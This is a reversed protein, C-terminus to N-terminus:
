AARVRNFFTAVKNELDHARSSLKATWSTIDGIASANRAAAQEVSGVETSARATYGAANHISEAISGTTASQEQVASAISTAVTTLTNIARTISAIEEVSRKTATQIAAVQQSIDDTARSTQNALTKVEAAVVAFGKGADGARAAEITANLALLNTQAAIASIASVVSGIRDAANDLSRIVDQTREADAVASQAMGLGRTAQEGIEQISGSLEETAAVTAEIRHATESSATSASAMRKQTDNAVDNLTTCSASLSDSTEKIANVVEGIAGAFEAIAEDIAGRRQVAAEEAAQRHLTMGNSVDFSIVKSIVISYAVVKSSSFRYKRGLAELAAKLVYSGATSRIRGDMGMAAEQHVTHRCSEAYDRDLKGGLLARFHSLELKKFFAENQAVAAGVRALVRVAVAIDDVAQELHPEIVPWVEALTHRASDDLGYLSLRAEFAQVLDTSSM